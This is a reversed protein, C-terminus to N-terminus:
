AAGGKCKPCACAIGAQKRSLGIRYAANADNYEVRGERFLEVFLKEDKHWGAAEFEALYYARKKNFM